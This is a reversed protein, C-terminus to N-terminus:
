TMSVGVVQAVQVMRDPNYVMLDTFVMRALRLAEASSEVGVVSECRPALTVAFGGAYCFCDLLKGRAYKKAAARNERQDLFGGTKQGGMLDFGFKVGNEEVVVEGVEEGARGFILPDGSKLRVVQLGSDALAVMLFNIEEQSIKQIEM